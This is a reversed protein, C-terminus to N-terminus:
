CTAPTAGHAHYTFSQEGHLVSGCTSASGALWGFPDPAELELGFLFTPPVPLDRHGAASRPTAPRHLGSQDRRDGQRLLAAARARRDRRGAATAPRDREPRDADSLEGERVPHRRRRRRTRHQAAARATVGEVQRPRPRAACSGSWSPASRWGPRASRTGRPCCAARRTPSSGAATPTTATPSSSRPPARRRDARAGRLQAARQHHLLRATRRCRIDEPGVGAAEYVQDRPPRPWTTASWGDDHRRRLHSAIDTTM